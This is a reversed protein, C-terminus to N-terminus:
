PRRSPRGRGSVGDRRSPLNMVLLGAIFVVTGLLSWADPLEARLVVGWFLAFVGMSNAFIASALFSVRSLAVGWILFSVGTIFGLAVAAAVAGISPPALLMPGSFPLPAACLLTAILFVGTNMDGSSMRGMLIKQSMMHIASGVAAITFLIFDLAGGTRVASIGNIGVLLAGIICLIAAALKRKGPRERFYFASILLLAVAQVPQEVIYGWSAGRAIAGNEAVYNLTKAAAAAWVWPAAFSFRPRRRRTIHWLALAVVGFFFRFFSILTPSFSVAAVKVLIGVFSWMLIPVFLL